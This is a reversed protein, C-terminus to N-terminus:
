FQRHYREPVQSVFISKMVIVTTVADRIDDWDTLINPKQLMYPNKKINQQIKKSQKGTTSYKKWKLRM